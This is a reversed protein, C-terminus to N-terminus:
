RTGVTQRDIYGSTCAKTIHISNEISNFLLSPHKRSSLAKPNGTGQQKDIFELM